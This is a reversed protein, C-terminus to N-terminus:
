NVKQTRQTKLLELDDEESYFVNNELPLHIPLREVTPDTHHIDYQLLRWAAEHPTICRCELFNNIENIPLNAPQSASSRSRIGIRASDFGKTVYKFLYKHMGDYNVKEVNIHAQYKVVLDVNHPVVFTNDIALHNKTTALGNNPRAYQTTGNDLVITKECYQKPYSKTCIGKSMCVSSPKLSGCPGHIMFSSVVDYGIQDVM